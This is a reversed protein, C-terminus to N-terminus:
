SAVNVEYTETECRYGMNCTNCTFRMSEKSATVENGCGCTYKFNSRRVSPAKPKEIGILDAIQEKNSIQLVKPIVDTKTSNAKLLAIDGPTKVPADKRNYLVDELEKDNRESEKIALIDLRNEEFTSTAVQDYKREQYEDYSSDGESELNVFLHKEAKVESLEIKKSTENRDLCNILSMVDVNKRKLIPVEILLPNLDGLDMVDNLEYLDSMLNDIEYKTPIKDFWDILLGDEALENCLKLFPGDPLIYSSMKKGTDKGDPKGTHSPMLGVVMMYAGWDADYFDIKLTEEDGYYIRYLKLLEQCFVRLIEIKPKVTFYEPNLSIEHKFNGDTDEFSNYTLAGIVKNKRQLTFVMDDIDLKNGLNEEFMDNFKEFIANLEKYVM